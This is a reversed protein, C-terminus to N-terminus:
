DVAFDWLTGAAVHRRLLHEVPFAQDLVLAREVACVLTDGAALSSLWAHEAAGLREIVVQAGHRTVLLHDGGKSLDVTPDGEYGPQNVQWIHLVPYPSALLRAAPHLLFRLGPLREPAVAALRSVELPKAEPARGAMELAWELAAVHRLYPLARTPGHSALFDGFGAGFDYLDGSLSPVARCYQDAAQDFCDEGILALIVPYSEKLARRYNARVNNRYVALGAAGSQGRAGALQAAIAEEGGMLAAAFGAQFEHLATM